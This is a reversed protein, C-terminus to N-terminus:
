TTMGIAGERYSRAVKFRSTQPNAQEPCKVSISDYLMNDRTNTKKWHANHKPPENMWTTAHTLVKKRKTVSYYIAWQLSLGCIISGNM